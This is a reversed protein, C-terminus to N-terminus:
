YSVPPASPQETPVYGRQEVYIPQPAPMVVVPPPSYARYYPVSYYPHWLPVDVIVSLHRHALVPRGFLLLSWGIVLLVMKKM